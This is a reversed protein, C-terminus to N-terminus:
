VDVDDGNDVNEENVVDDCNEKIEPLILDANDIKSVLYDSLKRFMKV